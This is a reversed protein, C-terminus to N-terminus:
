YGLDEGVLIVTIDSLLPKKRLVSYIRCARSKTQCDSCIGQEKCPNAMNLRKNNMPAAIMEIREYAAKENVCIKNIGAVIVIKKPGFTMAAVRNGAGDLNVLRGDLTIANSSCLFVDSLLQGRRIKMKEEDSLGPVNHNLVQAGMAAAKQPIELDSITVSGGVGVTSEPTIYKLVEKVAEDRTAVYVADFENKILAKTVQQGLTDRHWQQISM